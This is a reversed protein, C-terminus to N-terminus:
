IQADTNQRSRHRAHKNMPCGHARAHIRHQCTREQAGPQRPAAFTVRTVSLQHTKAGLIHFDLCPFPKFDTPLRGFQFLPEWPVTHPDHPTDQRRKNFKRATVRSLTAPAKECFITLVLNAALLKRQRRRRKIQLPRVTEAERLRCNRLKGSCQLRSLQQNRM